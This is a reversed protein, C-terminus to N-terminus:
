SPDKAIIGVGITAYGGLILFPSVVSALNQGRPDTFSLVIYGLVAIGAGVGIIKWGRRSIIAVQAPAPAMPTKGREAERRKDKRSM